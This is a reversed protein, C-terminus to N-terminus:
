VECAAQPPFNSTKETVSKFSLTQSRWKVMLANSYPFLRPVMPFPFTQLQAGVNLKTKVVNPLAVVYHCTQFVAFNNKKQKEPAISYV